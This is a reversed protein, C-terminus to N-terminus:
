SIASSASDEFIGNKKLSLKTNDLFFAYILVQFSIASETKFDTGTSLM